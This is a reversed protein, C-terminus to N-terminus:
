LFLILMRLLKSSHKYHKYRPPLKGFRQEVLEGIIREEESVGGDPRDKFNGHQWRSLYDERNIEQNEDREYDEVPGSFRRDFDDDGYQARLREIEM